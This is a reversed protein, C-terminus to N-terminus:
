VGCQLLAVESRQLSCLSSEGGWTMRGATVGWCPQLMKKPPPIRCGSRGGGDTEKNGHLKRKDRRRGDVAEGGISEWERRGGRDEMGKIAGGEVRQEIRMFNCLEANKEVAM